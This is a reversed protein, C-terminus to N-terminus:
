KSRMRLRRAEIEKESRGDQHPHLDSGKSSLGPLGGSLYVSNPYMQLTWFSGTNFGELAFPNFVSASTAMGGLYSSPYEFVSLNCGALVLGGTPVNNSIFTCTGSAKFEQSGLRFRVYFNQQLGTPFAFNTIQACAHATGIRRVDDDLVRGDYVSTLSSWLAANLRVNVPFPAEDCLAPDAPVSSDEVSRFQFVRESMSGTAGAPFAVLVAALLPSLRVSM